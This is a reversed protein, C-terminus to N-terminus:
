LQLNPFPAIPGKVAVEEESLGNAKIVAPLIKKLLSPASESLENLTAQQESGEAVADQSGGSENFLGGYDDIMLVDETIGSVVAGEGDRPLAVNHTAGMSTLQTAVAGTSTAALQNADNVDRVAIRVYLVRQEKSMRACLLCDSPNDINETLYEYHYRGLHSPCVYHPDWFLNRICHCDLYRVSDMWSAGDAM